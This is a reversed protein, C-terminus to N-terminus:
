RRQTRQTETTCRDEYEIAADMAATKEEDTAPEYQSSGVRGQNWRAGLSRVNGYRDIM